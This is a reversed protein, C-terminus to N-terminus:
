EEPWVRWCTPDISVRTGLDSNIWGDNTHRCPFPLRFPEGRDTVRLEVDRNYPATSMLRWDLDGNLYRAIGKIIGAHPHAAHRAFDPARDHSMVKSM